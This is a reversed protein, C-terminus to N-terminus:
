RVPAQIQEALKRSIGEVRCLDEVTANRVGDLGGFQALLKKRRAPGIGPIDELKSHAAGQRAPVTAPSPSATRRTASRRRDPSAGSSRACQWGMAGRAPDTGPGAQAGRGQGRRGASPRARTRGAGRAGRRAPGQRRRDAGPRPRCGRRDGGERLAADPGPADRRLRRGAHHRRHQLPPVRKKMAGNAWVVCSAVTAEGMTHSIDFCEIRQPAEALELAEVCPASGAAHRARRVMPKVRLANEANM